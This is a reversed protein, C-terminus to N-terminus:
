LQKAFEPYKKKIFRRMKEKARAIIVGVNTASLGTESAIEKYKMDDRYYLRLILQEDENLTELAADLIRLTDEQYQETDDDAMFPLVPDIPVVRSGERWKNKFYRGAHQYAILYILPEPKDLDHACRLREFGNRMLELVAGQFIEAIDDAAAGGAKQKAWSHIAAYILNKYREYFANIASPNGAFCGTMIDTPTFTSLM